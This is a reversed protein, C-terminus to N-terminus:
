LGAQVQKDRVKWIFSDLYYHMMGYAYGMMQSFLAYAAEYALGPIKLRPLGPHPAFHAPVFNMPGDPVTEQVAAEVTNFVPRELHTTGGRGPTVGAVIQTGYEICKSSHFSAASGTFGQVLLRSSKNLLISM